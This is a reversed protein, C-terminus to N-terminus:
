LTRGSAGAASVFFFRVVFHLRGQELILRDRFKYRTKTKSPKFLASEAIQRGPPSAEDMRQTRQAKALTVEETKSRRLDRKAAGAAIVHVQQNPSAHQQTACRPQRQERRWLDSHVLIPGATRTMKGYEFM